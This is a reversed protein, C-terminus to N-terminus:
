VCDRGVFFFYTTVGQDHISDLFFVGADGAFDDSGFVICIAGGIGREFNFDNEHKFNFDLLNWDADLSPIRFKPDFILVNRGHRDRIYTYPICPLQLSSKPGCSYAIDCIGSFNGNPHAKSGKLILKRIPM